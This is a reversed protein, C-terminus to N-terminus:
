PRCPRSAACSVSARMVGSGDGTGRVLLPGLAPEEPVLLGTLGAIRWAARYVPVTGRVGSSGPRTAPMSGAGIRGLPADDGLAGDPSSGFGLGPSSGLVLDRCPASAAPPQRHPWAPRTAFPKSPRAFATTARSRFVAWFSAVRASALAWVGSSCASTAPQWVSSFWRASNQRKTSQPKM